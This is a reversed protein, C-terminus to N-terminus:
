FTVLLSTGSWGAEWDLIKCSSLRTSCHRDKIARESIVQLNIDIQKM